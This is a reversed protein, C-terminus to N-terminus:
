ITKITVIESEMLGFFHGNNDEIVIENEDSDIDEAYNVVVAIGTHTNGYIDLVTVHLTEYDWLNM